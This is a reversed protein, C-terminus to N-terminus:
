FNLYITWMIAITAIKSSFVETANIDKYGDIDGKTYKSLDIGLKQVKITYNDIRAVSEEVSKAIEIPQLIRRIAVKKDKKINAFYDEISKKDLVTSNKYKYEFNVM